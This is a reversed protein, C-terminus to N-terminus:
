IWNAKDVLADILQCTREMDTYSVPPPSGARLADYTQGLFVALGEYATRQLVKDRFNTLGSKALHLGNSLHTMVPGLKGGRQTVLRLYPQFLDTEAWGKTGRVILSFCDPAARCCFRIRARAPGSFVLADLDDYKFLNGGGVNQWRAAVRDPDAVFRLALYSLHSIFEHIVGAPLGHSPHPLNRDAYRGGAGRINLCMRVDVDCVDGLQGAAVYSEIAQVTPNFRYNHDEILWRGCQRALSRLKDLEDTSLAVPKEVIVHADARLCDAAIPGHTHAPTLLHVVDPSVEALMQKYDTYSASAGFRDAAFRGVAPSLDCVAGIRVGARTRLFRLHEESIKGSGIVAACLTAKSATEGNRRPRVDALNGNLGLPQATLNALVREAGPTATSLDRVTSM